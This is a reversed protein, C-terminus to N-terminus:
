YEYFKMYDAKLIDKGFVYIRYATKGDRYDPLDNREYTIKLKRLKNEIQNIKDINFSFALMHAKNWKNKALCNVAYDVLEKESDFRKIINTSGRESYGYVFKNGDFKIVTGEPPFYKGIIIEHFNYCNNELWKELEDITSLNEEGIRTPKTSYEIQMLQDKNQVKTKFRDFLRM